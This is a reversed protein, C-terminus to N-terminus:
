LARRPLFFRTQHALKLGVEWVGDYMLYLRLEVVM